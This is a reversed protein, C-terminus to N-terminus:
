IVDPTEFMRSCEKAVQIVTLPSLNVQKVFDEIVLSRKKLLTYYYIMGAAISQPKRKVISASRGKITKYMQIAEDCQEKTSNIKFMFERMLDEETIHISLLPSRHPLNENVFKLGEQASKKPINFKKVLSDCSQPNGGHKYAFFVCGFVIGKRLKARRIKDCVQHFIDNAKDKIHTSIQINQLDQRTIDRDTVKRVYCRSPDSSHKTDNRGYYSSEKIYRIKQFVEVGCDKCVSFGKDAIVHKHVCETSQAKHLEPTTESALLQDFLKFDDM